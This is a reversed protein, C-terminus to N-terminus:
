GERGNAQESRKPTGEALHFLGALFAALSTAPGTQDSAISIARLEEPKPLATAIEPLRAILQAKVHQDSLNNEAERRLKFLALDRESRTSQAQHVLDEVEITSAARLRELESKAREWEAQRKLSELEAAIRRAEIEVQQLALELDAERRAKETATREAVARQEALQEAQHRREREAQERNFREAEQAAQLADLQRAKELEATERAQLNILEQRAVQQQADLEALRALRERESRFPKQLNEWLRTSSVVAEKIQVTVIKLGLGSADDSERSGEAVIRLRNTLEEIIPQKDSLIDDIGMTAVKDKIAAEAQERLQVNVIRMPDQPDSFDLKRYATRVDAVIWQVYAQVLVGQREVCICRANILLTQVAAPILLFADTYPNYPFSTGLGVHLPEAHGRRTHVVYVNPPVIVTKWFWFGKIRYDVARTRTSAPAGADEDTDMSGKKFEILGGGLGRGVALRARPAAAPVRPRLEDEVRQQQEMVENLYENSTEM